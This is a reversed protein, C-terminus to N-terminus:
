VGAEQPAPDAAGSVLSPGPMRGGTRRSVTKQSAPSDFAKTMASDYGQASYVVLEVLLRAVAPLTVAVAGSVGTLLRLRTPRYSRNM